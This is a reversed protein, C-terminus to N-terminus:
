LKKLLAVYNIANQLISIINVAICSKFNLTIMGETAHSLKNYIFLRTTFFEYKM